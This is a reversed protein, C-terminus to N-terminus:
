MKMFQMVAEAQKGKGGIEWMSVFYVMIQGTFYIHPM